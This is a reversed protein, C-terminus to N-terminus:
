QKIFTIKSLRSSYSQKVEWNTGGNVTKLIFGRLPMGSNRSVALAFQSDWADIGFMFMTNNVTLQRIWVSGGDNTLYFQNYDFAGWWTEPNLMMLDNIDAGGGTPVSDNKWTIGGDTSAIYHSARGYIVITNKNSTVGIWSHRNYDASPSISDWTAGGDTTCFIYGREQDNGAVYVKQPTIAWIGQIFHSNFFTPDFRTWTNGNDTSSYVTGGSGSIWINTQNVICISSLQTGPNNAPALVQVWNKGGDLTKLIVNKTGIAWVTQEDVAWIDEVDIGLLSPNGEGQREWNEGGDDSYLIMGYGTNDISGAVWACKKRESPVSDDKNCSNFVIAMM